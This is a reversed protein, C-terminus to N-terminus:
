RAKVVWDRGPPWFCLGAVVYQCLYTKEAGIGIGRRFRRLGGAGSGERRQAFGKTGERGKHQFIGVGLRSWVIAKGLGNEAVRLM